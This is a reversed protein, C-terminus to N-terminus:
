RVPCPMARRPRWLRPVGARHGQVLQLSEAPGAAFILAGDLATDLGCAGAAAWRATVEAAPFRWRNGFATTYVVYGPRSAAVLAPTSSSRSGHHPAIVLDVQPWRSARAREVPAEIDGPLLLSAGASRVLLVCSGNNDSSRAGQGAEPHLVSFEVGDWRWHMGARCAGAGAPWGTTRRPALAAVISGAGGSHDADAHSVVLHDLHRVGAARLAPVVIRSGADSAGFRPGTDYLLTHAATQVLVALGQGVDLVTVRLGGPPPAPPPVFLIALWPLWLVRWPWPRPWLAAIVGVGAVGLGLPSPAPLDLLAGPFDSSWQTFARWALLAAGAVELFLQGAAAHVPLLATGLLTLPIIALSFAPVAVLNAVFGAVPVQGFFLALLPVLAITIALQIRALACLGRWAAHHWGPRAPAGDAAPLALVVIAVGAFSLWFGPALLALPDIVVVVVLCIALVDVVSVARRLQTLVAICALMAVARITPVSFGALAGYGLAAALGSWVAWLRPTAAGGIRLLGRAVLAGSLAFPLAVLGVHFGSIAVLHTTGSRRLLAWEAAPLSQVAGIALGQLYPLAPHGALAEALRAALGRRLGALRCPAAGALRRNGAAARVWGTAGIRRTFLWREFDWVGPNATGRPARLRLDLQWREGIVPQVPADYWNVLLRRPVIGALAPDDHVFVFRLRGPYVQPFDCLHGRVTVDAGSRAEPLRQGIVDAAGGLVRLTVLVVLVGRWRALRWSLAAVPLGGVFWWPAPWDPLAPACLVLLGACLVAAAVGAMTVGTHGDRVSAHATM